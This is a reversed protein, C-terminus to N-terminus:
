HSKRYQSPTLGTVQKFSRNFVAKSSFGAMFALDTISHDHHSTLLQCVYDVRLQNIYENFSKQTTLNIARSVDRSLLGLESALQTLTLRETKFLGDQKIKQDIASFITHYHHLDAAPKADSEEKETVVFAVRPSSKQQNLKYSIFVIVFLWLANNLLQGILNLDPPIYPQMNLRAMDLLNFAATILVLWVLWLMSHEDSDSRERELQRKYHILIKVTLLSYVLRSLTGLAIVEQVYTSFFLGIFAPTFHLWDKHTIKQGILRRCSLYLAPGFILQFVPSLLFVNQTRSAAEFINTTAAFAVLLMFLCIGKLGKKHWLIFCGQLAVAALAANVLHIPDLM